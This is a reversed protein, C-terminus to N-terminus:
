PKFWRTGGPKYSGFAKNQVHWWNSNGDESWIDADDMAQKGEPTNKLWSTILLGPDAIDVAAADTVTELHKSKKPILNLDTIGKQAYIRLHEQWSRVGSTVAMIKGYAERVKNVRELLDKEQELKDQNLDDPATGNHIIEALSLM